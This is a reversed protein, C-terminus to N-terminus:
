AESFDTDFECDDEIVMFWGDAGTAGNKEIIDRWIQMHSLACGVAGDTLDTGFLKQDNPLRYRPLVEADIIGQEALKPVDIQAGDVARFRNVPLQLRMFQQKMFEWREPRRDLNICYANSIRRWPLKVKGQPCNAM